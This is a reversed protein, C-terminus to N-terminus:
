MQQGTMAQGEEQIKEIALPKTLMRNISDASDFCYLNENVFANEHYMLVGCLEGMIKCADLDTSLTKITGISVSERGSEDFKGHLGCDIYIGELGGFNIIPLLDFEYRCLKETHRDDPLVYDCIHDFQALDGNGRACEMVKEFLQGGTMRQNEIGKKLMRMHSDKLHSFDQYPFIGQLIEAIGTPEEPLHEKLASLQEEDMKGLAYALLSLEQVGGDLKEPLCNALMENLEEDPTDVIVAAQGYALYYPAPRQLFEEAQLPLSLAHSEGNKRTLTLQM